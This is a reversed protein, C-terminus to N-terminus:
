LKWSMMRSSIKGYHLQFNKNYIKYFMHKKCKFIWDIPLCDGHKNTKPVPPIQLLDGFLAVTCGGFPLDNRMIQKMRREVRRLLTADCMSIEDIILLMLYPHPPLPNDDEAESFPNLNFMSHITSGNIITGAMATSGCVIIHAYGIEKVIRNILVTKGTGGAGGVYLVM